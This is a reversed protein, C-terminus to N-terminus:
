QKFITLGATEGDLSLILYYVGSPVNGPPSVTKTFTGTQTIQTSHLLVDPSGSTSPVLWIDLHGLRSVTYDINIQNLFPNPSVPGVEIDKIPDPGCGFTPLTFPRDEIARDGCINEVTMRAIYSTNPQFGHRYKNPYKTSQSICHRIAPGSKWGTDHILAGSQTLFEIKYLEDHMTAELQFCYSCDDADENPLIHINAMPPRCDCDTDPVVSEVYASATTNLYDLMLDIQSSTFVGKSQVDNSYNM